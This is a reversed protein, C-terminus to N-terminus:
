KYFHTSPKLSQSSSHYITQPVLCTQSKFKHGRCSCCTSEVVLSNERREKPHRPAAGCWIPFSPTSGLEMTRPTKWQSTWAGICVPYYLIFCLSLLPRLLIEMQSHTSLSSIGLSKLSGARQSVMM